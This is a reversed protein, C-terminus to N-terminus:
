GPTMGKSLFWLFFIAYAITVLVIMGIAAGGSFAGAVGGFILVVLLYLIIVLLPDIATAFWRSFLGARKGVQPNPIFAECWTCFFRDAIIEKNCKPCNM